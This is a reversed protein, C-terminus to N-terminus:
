RVLSTRGSLMQRQKTIAATSYNLCVEEDLALVARISLDFANMQSMAM